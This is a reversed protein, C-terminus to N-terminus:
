VVMQKKIRGVLANQPNRKRQLLHVSHWLLAVLPIVKVSRERKVVVPSEQRATL